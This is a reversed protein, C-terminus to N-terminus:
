ASGKRKEDKADNQQQENQQQERRMSELFDAAEQDSCNTRGKVFQRAQEPTLKTVTPPSYSKKEGESDSQM